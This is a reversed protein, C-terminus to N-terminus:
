LLLWSSETKRCELAGRHVFGPTLVAGGLVTRGDSAMESETVNVLSFPEKSHCWRSLTTSDTGYAFAVDLMVGTSFDSSPKQLLHYSLARLLPVSRRNQAALSLCVRRIEETSFAEALELAQLVFALCCLSVCLSAGGGVALAARADPVSGPPPQVKRGAM